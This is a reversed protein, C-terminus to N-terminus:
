AFREAPVLVGRHVLIAVPFPGTGGPVRMEGFQLADKGYTMRGTAQPTPQKLLELPNTSQGWLCGSLLLPLGPILGRSTWGAWGQGMSM